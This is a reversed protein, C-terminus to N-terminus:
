GLAAGLDELLDDIAEIGISLRLLDDPVATGAGEVAARYEVLSEVGGLSTADTFVRLRAAVARASEAGGAVRFSVIPGFGLDMQRAAVEHGPHDPLGAYYVHSVRPDAALVEAVRQANAAAKEVRLYLTRMGRLLLWAEFPGLIAGRYAREHRVRTWIASSTDATVLAGAVVDAHGNLQKTASHMVFDAGHEIPRTNVPTALTSDVALKAGCAHAIGATARLDTVEGMPNAPTEVWVMATDGARVAARIAEQDGAAVFDVRLRGQENLETLWLRFTWYMSSPAVVHAGSPLAEVLTTAAAMGSSFLLAEAGGELRCLLEEAPDWTPNQDRTYSHGGPYSGDAAREYTASPYIPPSLGRMTPDPRGLAQAALTERKVPPDLESV